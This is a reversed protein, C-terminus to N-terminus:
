VVLSTLTPRNLLFNYSKFNIYFKQGAQLLVYYFARYQATKSPPTYFRDGMIKVINPRAFTMFMDPFCPAAALKLINFYILDYRFAM